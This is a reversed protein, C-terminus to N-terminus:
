IPLHTAHTDTEHGTEKTKQFLVVLAWEISSQIPMLSSNLDLDPNAM